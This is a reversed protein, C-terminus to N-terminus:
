RVAARLEAPVRRGGDILRCDPAGAPSTANGHEGFGGHGVTFGDKTQELAKAMVDEEDAEM